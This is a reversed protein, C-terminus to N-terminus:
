YGGTGGALNNIQILAEASNDANGAIELIRVLEKKFISRELDSVAPDPNHLDPFVIFDYIIAKTKDKHYRIVRGIRQIYERPNTSSSLLIANEANPIDIGEDLAKIGILVKISGRKFLEIIHARESLGGFKREAKTGEKETFKHFTLGHKRLIEMCPQVQSPSCYVITHSLKIQDLQILKDLQEVKNAASKVINARKILLNTILEKSNEDDKRTMAFIIRKTLIQYNEQEEENLYVPIPIYRYKTLFTCGTLPNITYLADKISFEYVTDCFYEYLEKTGAEDFWRKPTASLGLRNQYVKLLAAKSQDAGLGHVEDGIFLYSYGKGFDEICDSFKQTRATPHLTFVILSNIVKLRINILSNQMEPLWRSNTGDAIIVKNFPLNFQRVADVWQQLITHQPSSIIVVDIKRDNIAKYIGAIATRTKGTGTAMELIGCYNNASWAELAQKQYDFLSFDKMHNSFQNKLLNTKRKEISYPRDMSRNDNLVKLVGEPIPHVAINPDDGMWIREFEKLHAQVLSSQDTIWSKVVMISEYNNDANATDNYSGTFAIRNNEIDTFVGFKAHFMGGLKCRPIAIKFSIVEDAILWALKSFTDIRQEQKARVIEGLLAHYILESRKAEEGLVFAEIDDAQLNPSIIWRAKGGNEIFKEIGDINNRIWGSTFYGVGRDYFISNSLAPFFFDRELNKSSTELISHLQIDALGM